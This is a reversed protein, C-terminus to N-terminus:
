NLGVLSTAVTGSFGSSDLSYVSEFFRNYTASTTGTNRFLSVFNKRVDLPDGVASAGVVGSVRIDLANVIRPTENMPVQLNSATFISPGSTGTFIPYYGGNAVVINQFFRDCEAKDLSQPRKEYPKPSMGKTLQFGTLFVSEYNSLSGFEIFPAVFSSDSGTAGPYELNESSFAFQYREYSGSLTDTYAHYSGGTRATGDSLFAGKSEIQAYTSGTNWVFGVGATFGFTSSSNTRAYFSFNFDHDSLTKHDPVVVYLRAKGTTNSPVQTLKLEFNPTTHM